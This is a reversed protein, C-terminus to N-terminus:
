KKETLDYFIKHIEEIQKAYRSASPMLTELADMSGMLDELDYVVRLLRDKLMAEADLKSEIHGKIDIVKSV